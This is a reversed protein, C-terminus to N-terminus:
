CPQPSPVAQLAPGWSGSPPPQNAPAAPPAAGSAFAAAVDRLGQPELVSANGHVADTVRVRFPRVQDGTIDRVLQVLEANSTRSDVTLHDAAADVLRVVKRPDHGDVQALRALLALAIAQQREMRGLDSTPDSQWRGAEDLYRLHRSRALQLLGAGDFTTCGAPVDLGIQGDRIRSAFSLRLGGLADGIAMTGDFDAQVYRDVQLGTVSEVTRVLLNPGGLSMAANLRGDGHGAIPVWLDRPLPLVALTRAAPDVRALVVTDSRTGSVGSGDGTPRTDVGAFLVVQARGPPPTEAGVSAVHVRQVQDLKRDAAVVVGAALGVAVVLVGLSARALLRRRRRSRGRAVVRTRFARDPTFGAPDDLHEFM